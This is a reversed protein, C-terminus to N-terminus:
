AVTVVELTDTSGSGFREELTDATSAGIWEEMADATCTGLWKALADATSAGIRQGDDRFQRRAHNSGNEFGHRWGFSAHGHISGNFHPVYHRRPTVGRHVRDM